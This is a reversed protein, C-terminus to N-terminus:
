SATAFGGSVTGSRRPLRRPEHNRYFMQPAIERCSLLVALRDIETQNINDAARLLLSRSSQPHILLLEHRTGSLSSRVHHAIGIYAAIPESWTRGRGALGERVKVRDHGIEILRKQGFRTASRLIPWGFLLAWAILAFGLLVSTEPRELLLSYDNAVHRAILIFPTLAAAAAPLALALMLMPSSRSGTQVLNLPLSVIPVNPSISEFAAAHM